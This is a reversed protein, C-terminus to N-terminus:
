PKGRRKATRSVRVKEAKQARRRPRTWFRGGCKISCWRAQKNRGKDVFWRLCAGCRKLRFRGDLWVVFTQIEYLLRGLTGRFPATGMRFQWHGWKDREVGLFLSMAVEDAADDFRHIGDQLHEPFAGPGPKSFRFASLHSRCPASPAFASFSAVIKEAKILAELQEKGKESLRGREQAQRLMPIENMSDALQQLREFLAVRFRVYQGAKKAM